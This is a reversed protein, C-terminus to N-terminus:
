QKKKRYANLDGGSAAKLATRLYGAMMEEGGLVIDPPIAIVAGSQALVRRCYAERGALRHPVPFVDLNSLGVLGLYKASCVVTCAGAPLIGEKWRAQLVCAAFIVNVKNTM